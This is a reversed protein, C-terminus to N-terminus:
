RNFRYRAPRREDEPTKAPTKKFTKVNPKNNKEALEKVKDLKSVTGKTKIDSDYALGKRLIELGEITVPQLKKGILPNTFQTVASMVKETTEQGYKEAFEAIIKVSKEEVEKVTTNLKAKNELYVQRNEIAKDFKAEAEKEANELAIDDDYEYDEPFQYGYLNELARREALFKRKDIKYEALSPKKIESGLVDIYELTKLEKEKQELSKREESVKQMKKTYDSQRLAGDKFEEPVFGFKGDGLDVKVLEKKDEGKSIIIKDDEIAYEEDTDDGEAKPQEKESDETEAPTEKDKVTEKEDGKVDEGKEDAERKERLKAYRDPLVRETKKSSDKEPQEETKTTVAKQSDTNPQERNDKIESDGSPQEKNNEEM